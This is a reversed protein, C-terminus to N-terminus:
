RGSSESNEVEYAIGNDSLDVEGEEPIAMMDEVGDYRPSEVKKVETFMERVGDLRPTRVQKPVNDTKGFLERM